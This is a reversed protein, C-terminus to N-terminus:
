WGSSGCAGKCSYPRIDQHKNRCSDLRSARDFTKGCTECKFRSKHSRRSIQQNSAVSPEFNIESNISSTVPISRLDQTQLLIGPEDSNGTSTHSVEPTWFVPLLASAFRDDETPLGSRLPQDVYFHAQVTHSQKEEYPDISDVRIYSPTSYYSFEYPPCGSSRQQSVDRTDPQTGFYLSHGRYNEM